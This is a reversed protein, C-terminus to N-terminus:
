CDLYNDIYIIEGTIQYRGEGLFLCSKSSNLAPNIQHKYGFELVLHKNQGVEFDGLNDIMSWYEINFQWQIDKM